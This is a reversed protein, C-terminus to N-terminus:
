HFSFEVIKEVTDRYTYQWAVKVENLHLIVNITHKEGERLFTKCILFPFKTLCAM